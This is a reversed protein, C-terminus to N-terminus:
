LQLLNINSEINKLRNAFSVTKINKEALWLNIVKTANTYKTEKTTVFMNWTFNMYSNVSEIRVAIKDGIDADITFPELTVTLIKQDEKRELLYQSVQYALWWDRFTKYEWLAGYQSVKSMDELKYKTWASEWIIINAMTWFSEIKADNINNERNDNGNYIAETFGPWITKDEWVFTEMIIQEDVVTWQAQLLDAIENIIDFLNDWQKFDKSIATVISSSVTWNEWYATNLDNLLDQIMSLWSQLYYTKDSLCLKKAMLWKENRCELVMKNISFQPNNIYGKFVLIDTNDIVEYLEIKQFQTIGDFLINEITMTSYSKIDDKITVLWDIYEVIDATTDFQNQYIKVLLM